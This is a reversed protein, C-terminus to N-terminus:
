RECLNVYWHYNDNDFGVMVTHSNYTVPVLRIYRTPAETQVSSPNWTVQLMGPSVPVEVVDTAVISVLPSYEHAIMAVETAFAFSRGLRDGLLVVDNEDDDRATFFALLVLEQTQLEPATLM